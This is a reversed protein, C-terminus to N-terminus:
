AHSATAQLARNLLEAPTSRHRLLQRALSKLQEPAAGLTGAVATDAAALLQLELEESSPQAEPAPRQPTPCPLAVYRAVHRPEVATDVMVQYLGQSGPNYAWGDVEYRSDCGGLAVYHLHRKVQLLDSLPLHGGPGAFHELRAQLLLVRFDAERNDLRSMADALDALLPGTMAGYYHLGFVRVRGLDIYSGEARPRSWAPLDLHGRAIPADLVSLLGDQSLVRHWSLGGAAARREAQGEIALIEIGKAKLRNLGGLLLQLVAPTADPGALLNGSFLVFTSRQEIAFDVMFNFAGSGSVTGDGEAPPDGGLRPGAAHLFSTRM